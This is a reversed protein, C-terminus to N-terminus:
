GGTVQVLRQQIAQWVIRKDADGMRGWNGIESLTRLCGECHGGDPHMLCVSVCPSPVHPADQALVQQARQALLKFHPKM